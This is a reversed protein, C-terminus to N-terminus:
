HYFLIQTKSLYKDQFGLRRYLPAAELVGDLEITPVGKSQLYSMAIKMLATGVGKGREKKDVILSALFAYSNYVISTITGVPHDDNEAVFCGEPELDYLRNYDTLGNGWNEERALDAMYRLDDRTMTRINM